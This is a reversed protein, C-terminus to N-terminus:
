CHRATGPFLAQIGLGFVQRQLGALPYDRLKQKGM